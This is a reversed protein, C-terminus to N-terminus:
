NLRGARHARCRRIEQLVGLQLADLVHPADGPTARDCAVAMGADTLRLMKGHRDRADFAIFGKATLDRVTRKILHPDLETSRGILRLDCGEPYVRVMSKLIPSWEHPFM